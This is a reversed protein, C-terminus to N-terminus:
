MKPTIITLVVGVDKEYTVSHIRILSDNVQTYIPMSMSNKNIEGSSKDVNASYIELIKKGIEYADMM